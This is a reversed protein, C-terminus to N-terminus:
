AGPGDQHDDVIPPAPPQESDQTAGESELLVLGTSDIRETRDVRNVIIRPVNRSADAGIRVEARSAVGFLMLDEISSRGRAPGVRWHSQLVAGKPHVEENDLRLFDDVNAVTTQGGPANVTLETTLESLPREAVFSDAQKLLSEGVERQLEREVISKFRRRPSEPDHSVDGELARMTAQGEEAQLELIEPGAERALQEYRARIWGPRYVSTSFRRQLSHLRAEEVVASGIQVSSPFGFGRVRDDDVDATVSPIEFPHHVVMGIIANWDDIEQLRWDLRNKAVRVHVEAILENAKRRVAVRQEHQFKLVRRWGRLVTLIMWFPATMIIALIVLCGIVAHHTKVFFFYGSGGIALLLLFITRLLNRRGTRKTRVADEADSPATPEDGRAARDEEIKKVTEVARDWDGQILSRVRGTFSLDAPLIASDAIGLDASPSTAAQAQMQSAHEDDEGGAEDDHEASAAVAATSPPTLRDPLSITPTAWPDLVVDNPVGTISRLDQVTQFLLDHVIETGEGPNGDLLSFALQIYPSWVHGMDGQILRQSQALAIENTIDSVQTAPSGIEKWTRVRVGSEPFKGELLTAARSYVKAAANDLMEVPRMALETLVYSWVRRFKEVLSVVVVPDDEPLLDPRGLSLEPFKGVFTSAILDLKPALSVREFQEQSPNPYLSPDLKIGALLGARLAPFELIRTYQRVLTFIDATGGNANALIKSVATVEGTDQIAWISCLSAIGAAVHGAFVDPNLSAVHHEPGGRDEAAFIVRDPWSELNLDPFTADPRDAFLVWLRELAGLDAVVRGLEHYISRASEEGSSFEDEATLLSVRLLLPPETMQDFLAALALVDVTGAKVTSMELGSPDTGPRAVVFDELFGAASWQVLTSVVSDAIPEKGFIVIKM